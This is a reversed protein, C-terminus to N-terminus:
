EDCKVNYNGYLLIYYLIEKILIFMNTQNRKYFESIM